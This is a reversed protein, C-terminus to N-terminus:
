AVARDTEAVRGLIEAKLNHHRLFDLAAQLGSEPGTADVTLTGYPADQIYDIHGHLINFSVGFRRVMESMIPAHAAAGTFTIRVVLHSATLPSFRLRSALSEPLELNLVERVLARTTPHAPSTFVDFVRGQEVVRGDDLVAVRDAIEKIVQMEHTILVITLGLSRSIEKLLALVSKTTEPDLASTAEDCLLVSPRSALARAIGVRQKQGGSLQAPYSEAQDSLGVLELLESVRRRKAARPVKTLELPLAVNDRVNRSSLLNFHQFVMGIERRAARLAPDNLASLARGGVTVSGRSPRELLNICRVLTSKGAGSRGIIGFIEGKAVDLSVGRLVPVPGDAGPFEKHLDNIVIM